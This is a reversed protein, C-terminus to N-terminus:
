YRYGNKVTEFLLILFNNATIKQPVSESAYRLKIFINLLCLMRVWFIWFLPLKHEIRHRLKSLTGHKQGPSKLSQPVRQGREGNSLTLELVVQVRAQWQLIEAGHDLCRMWAQAFKLEDDLECEVVFNRQILEVLHDFAFPHGYAAYVAQDCLTVGGQCLMSEEGFVDSDFFSVQFSQDQVIAGIQVIYDLKLPALLCVVKFNKEIDFPM